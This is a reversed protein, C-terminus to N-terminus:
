LNGLLRAVKREDIDRTAIRATESRMNVTLRHISCGEWGVFQRKANELCNQYAKCEDSHEIQKVDGLYIYKCHKGPRSQITEAETSHVRQAEDFIVICDRFSRGQVLEYPVVEFYRDIYYRVREELRSSYSMKDTMNEAAQRNEEAQKAKREQDKQRNKKSKKSSHNTEYDSAKLFENEDYLDLGRGNKPFSRGALPVEPKGGSLDNKEHQNSYVYKFGDDGFKRLLKRMERFEPLESVYSEVADYIYAVIPKLKEELGGPIAGTPLKASKSTIIVCKKFEGKHIADIAWESVTYTKGTGAPGDVILVMIAPNYLSDHLTAIGPNDKPHSPASHEYELRVLRQEKADYRAVHPYLSEDIEFTNPYKGSKPVLYLFENAILDREKPMHRKFDALSVEKAYYFENFLKDPVVIERCGVYAERHKYSFHSTKVGYTEAVNTCNIDNTVLTVTKGDGIFPLSIPLKNTTNFIDLGNEVMQAYLATVVIWGDKDSADPVVPLFKSFARPVPLISLTQNLYGISVPKKFNIVDEITRGSNAMQHAIHEIVVRAHLGRLSLEDKQHDLEMLVTMPIIIQSNAFDPKAEEVPEWDPDEPDYIIDPCALLINTDLVYIKGKISQSVEVVAEQNPSESETLDAAEVENEYLAEEIQRNTFKNSARRNVDYHYNRNKNKRKSM